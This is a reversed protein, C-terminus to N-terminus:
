EKAWGEVEIEEASGLWAGLPLERTPMEQSEMALM